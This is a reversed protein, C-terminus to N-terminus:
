CGTYEFVARLTGDGTVHISAPNLYIPDIVLSLDDIATNVTGENTWITISYLTGSTIGLSTMIAKLDYEKWAVTTDPFPYIHSGSETFFTIGTNNTETSRIWIYFSSIVDIPISSSFIQNITLYSSIAEFCYIGSHPNIISIAGDYPVWGTTDGTEFGGNTVANGIVTVGGITEWYLFSYDGGINFEVPHDGLSISVDSPLTHWSLLIEGDDEDSANVCHSTLHILPLSPPPAIGTGASNAIFDFNEELWGNAPINITGKKLRCNYLYLIPAGASTSAMLKLDFEFNPISLSDGGFLLRLYYINVWAKGLSGSIEILGLQDVSTIPIMNPNEIEYYPEISSSYEVTVNKCTGIELDHVYIKAEWGKFVKTSM